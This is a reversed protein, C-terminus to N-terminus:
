EQLEKLQQKLQENEEQLEDNVKSHKLFVDWDTTFDKEDVWCKFELYGDDREGLEVTMKPDDELEKILPRLRKEYYLITPIPLILYAYKSKGALQKIPSLEKDELLNNLRDVIAQNSYRKVFHKNDKTTIYEEIINEENLKFEHGAMNM